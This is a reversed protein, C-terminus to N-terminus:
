FNAESERERERESERVLGTLETCFITRVSFMRTSFEGVWGFLPPICFHFSLIVKHGHKAGFQTSLRCKNVFRPM